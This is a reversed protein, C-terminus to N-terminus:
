IARVNGYNENRPKKRTKSVTQRKATSAPGLEIQRAVWDVIKDVLTDIDVFIKKGQRVSPIEGDNVMQRLMLETIGTDPDQEKLYAYAQSITRLRPLKCM